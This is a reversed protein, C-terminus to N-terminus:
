LDACKHLHSRLINESLLEPGKGDAGIDEGTDYQSKKPPVISHDQSESPGIKFTMIVLM